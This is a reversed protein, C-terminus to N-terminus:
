SKAGSGLEACMEIVVYKGKVKVVEINIRLEQELQRQEAIRRVLSDIQAEREAVFASEAAARSAQHGSSRRAHSSLSGAPPPRM